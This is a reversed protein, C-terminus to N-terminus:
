DLPDEKEDSNHTDTDIEIRWGRDKSEDYYMNIYVNYGYRESIEHASARLSWLYDGVEFEFAKRRIIEYKEKVANDFCNEDVISRTAKWFAVANWGTQVYAEMRVFETEKGDFDSLLDVIWDLMKVFTEHDFGNEHIELLYDEFEPFLEYDEPVFRRYDLEAPLTERLVSIVFSESIITLFDGLEFARMLKHFEHSPLTWDRDVLGYLDDILQKRDTKSILPLLHEEFYKHVREQVGPVSYADIEYDRIYKYGIDPKRMNSLRPKLSYVDAKYSYYKEWDEETYGSRLLVYLDIIQRTGKERVKTGTENVYEVYGHCRPYIINEFAAYNLRNLSAVDIKNAM